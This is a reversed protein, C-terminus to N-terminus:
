GKLQSGPP